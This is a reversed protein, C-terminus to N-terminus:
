HNSIDHPKERDKPVGSIESSGDSISIDGGARTNADAASITPSVDYFFYMSFFSLFCHAFLSSLRGEKKREREKELMKAGKTMAQLILISSLLQSLAVFCRRVVVYLM